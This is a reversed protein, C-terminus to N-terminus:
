AQLSTGAPAARTREPVASGIPNATVTGMQLMLRQAEASVAFYRESGVRRALRCDVFAEVSPVRLGVTTSDALTLVLRRSAAMCRDNPEAATAALLEQQLRQVQAVERVARCPEQGNSSNPDTVAPGCLTLQNFASPALEFGPARSPSASTTPASGASQGSSETCGSLALATLMVVILPERM